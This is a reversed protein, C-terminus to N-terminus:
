AGLLSRGKGRPGQHLCSWGNQSQAGPRGARPLSISSRIMTPHFVEDFLHSTPDAVVPNRSALRPRSWSLSDKEARLKTRRVGSRGLEITPSGTAADLTKSSRDPMCLAPDGKGGRGARPPPLTALFANVFGACNYFTRPKDMPQPFFAASRSPAPRR